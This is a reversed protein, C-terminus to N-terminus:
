PCATSAAGRVTAPADGEGASQDERGTRGRPRRSVHEGLDLVRTFGRREIDDLVARYATLNGHVDSVLALRDM